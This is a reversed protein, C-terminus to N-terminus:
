RGPWAEWVPATSNWVGPNRASPQIREDAKWARRDLSSDNGGETWNPNERKVKNEYIRINGLGPVNLNVDSDRPLSFASSM